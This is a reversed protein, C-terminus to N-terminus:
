QFEDNKEVQRWYRTIFHETTHEISKATYEAPTYSYRRVIYWFNGGQGVHRRLYNNAYERPAESFDDAPWTVAM